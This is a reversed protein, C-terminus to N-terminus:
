NEAERAQRILEADLAALNIGLASIATDSAETDNIWWDPANPDRDDTDGPDVSSTSVRWRSVVLGRELDTRAKDMVEAAEKELPQV